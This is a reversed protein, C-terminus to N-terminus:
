EDIIEINIYYHNLIDIYNKGSLALQNSGYISVGMGHGIGRSIIRIRDNYDEITFALSQLHFTELFLDASITFEGVRVRNIYGTTDSTELTLLSIINEEEIEFDGNIEKLKALFETKSITILALYNDAQIDDPSDVSHLYEYGEKGRTVGTSVSHFFPEILKGEYQIVKGKTDIVAKEYRKYNTAFMDEGWNRRMEDFSMYPLALEQSTISSRGEMRKNIYTRILVSQVKFAEDEFSPPMYNAIVGVIYQEVGMEEKTEKKIITITKDGKEIEKSSFKINKGTLVMTILYPVLLTIIFLFLGEIIKGRLYDERM